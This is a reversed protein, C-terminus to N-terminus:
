GIQPSYLAHPNPAFQNAVNPPPLSSQRVASAPSPKPFPASKKRLPTKFNWSAADTGVSSLGNKLSPISFNAVRAGNSSVEVQSPASSSRVVNIEISPSPNHTSLGDKALQGIFPSLISTRPVSPSPISTGNLSGPFNAGTEVFNWHQPSSVSGVESAGASFQSAPSPPFIWSGTSSGVSYPLINTTPPIKFATEPPQSISTPTDPRSIAPSRDQTARKQQTLPNMNSEMGKAPSKRRTYKRKKPENALLDELLETTPSVPNSSSDVVEIKPKRVYKRKKPAAVITTPSQPPPLPSQLPQQSSQQSTPSWLENVGSPTLDCPRPLLNSQAYQGSPTIQPGATTIFCPNPQASYTQGIPATATQFNISANTPIAQPYIHPYPFTQPLITQNIFPPPLSFQTPIQPIYHPQTPCNDYKPPTNTSAPPFAPPALPFALGSHSYYGFSPVPLIRSQSNMAKTSM